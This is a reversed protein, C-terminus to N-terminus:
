VTGVYTAYNVHNFVNFADVGLSIAREDKGGGFKLERAVRLDLSAFGAGELSNRPVGAPRARGRGNNYIDDGLVETYPANSNMTLGVGIDAIRNPVVRGILVLRHRRDFDARAYEGALDYDNAPFWAIGNTDNYARGIAYQAQGNFWRTVRGRLTVSL